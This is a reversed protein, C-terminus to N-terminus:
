RGNSGKASFAFEALCVEKATARVTAKRAIDPALQQWRDVEGRGWAECVKWISAHDLGSAALGDYIPCRRYIGTVKGDGAQHECDIALSGIAADLVEAVATPDTEKGTRVAMVAKALGEGAKFGVREQMDIAKEWGLVAAIEQLFLGYFTWTVRATTYGSDNLVGM